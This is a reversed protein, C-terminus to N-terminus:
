NEQVPSDGMRKDLALSINGSRAKNRIDRCTLCRRSPGTSTSRLRTNRKTFKHGWKCHTKRQHHQRGRSIMDAINEKQTGILLHGPNVCLPTDCTHRLMRRGLVCSHWFEYALRHARLNVWRGGRWLTFQGYGKSTPRGSWIWCHRSKRVKLWFRQRQNGRSKGM